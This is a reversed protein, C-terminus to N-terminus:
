RKMVIPLTLFDKFESLQKRLKACQKGVSLSYNYCKPGRKNRHTESSNVWDDDSRESFENDSLVGPDQNEDNMSEEAEIDVNDGMGLEVDVPRSSAVQVNAGNGCWDYVKEEENNDDNAYYTEIM